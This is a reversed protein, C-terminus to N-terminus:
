HRRFLLFDIGRMGVFITTSSLQHAATTYLDKQRVVGVYYSVLDSRRWGLRLQPDIRFRSRAKFNMDNQVGLPAEPAAFNGLWNRSLQLGASLQLGRAIKTRPEVTLLGSVSLSLGEFGGTNISPGKASDQVTGRQGAFGSLGLEPQLSWPGGWDCLRIQRGYSLGLTVGQATLPQYARNIMHSTVLMKYGIGAGWYSKAFRHLRRGPNNDPWRQAALVNLRDIYDSIRVLTFPVTDLVPNLIGLDLQSNLKRLEKQYYARFMTDGDNWNIRLATLEFAPRNGLRYLVHGKGMEDEYYYLRVYKGSTWETAAIVQPQLRYRLSLSRKRYLFAELPVIPKPPEVQGTDQAPGLLDGQSSGPAEAALVRGKLITDIVCASDVSSTLGEAASVPSYYSSFIILLLTCYLSQTM